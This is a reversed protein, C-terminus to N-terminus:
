QRKALILSANQSPVNTGQITASAYIEGVTSEGPSVLAVIDYSFTAGPAPFNSVVIKGSGFQPQTLLLSISVPTTFGYNSSFTTGTTATANHITYSIFNILGVGNKDLTFQAVNTQSRSAPLPVGTPSDWGVSYGHSIYDGAFQSLRISGADLFCSISVAALALLSTLRFNKM